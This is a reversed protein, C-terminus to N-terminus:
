WFNRWLNITKNGSVKRLNRPKPLMLYKGPLKTLLDSIYINQNSQWLKVPIPKEFCSRPSSVDSGYDGFESNRESNQQINYYAILGGERWDLNYIPTFQFRWSTKNIITTTFAKSELRNVDVDKNLCHRRNWHRTWCKIQYPKGPKLNRRIEQGLVIWYLSVRETQWRHPGM